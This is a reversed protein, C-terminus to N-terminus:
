LAFNWNFCITAIKEIESDGMEPHRKKTEEIIKQKLLECVSDASVYLGKRGSMQAQKGDTDLGLTKATDSSLTVSEYGLHVYSDPISNFKEMLTTIIKQLREQRSDIVTVVKQATFNQSPTNTDNLTTQWLTKSNPQTANEYKEYYFPDDLM